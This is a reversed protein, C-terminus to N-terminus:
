CIPTIKPRFAHFKGPISSIIMYLFRVNIWETTVDDSGLVIEGHLNVGTENGFM